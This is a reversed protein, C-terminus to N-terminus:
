AHDRKVRAVAAQLQEALHLAQEPGLEVGFTADNNSWYLVIVRRDPDPVAALSPATPRVEAM